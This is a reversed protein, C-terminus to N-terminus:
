ELDSIQKYWWEFTDFDFNEKNKLYEWHKKREEEPLVDLAVKIGVYGDDYLFVKERDKTKEDKKKTNEVIICRQMALMM